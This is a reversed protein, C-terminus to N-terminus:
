GHNRRAVKLRCETLTRLPGVKYVWRSLAWAASLKIVADVLHDFAPLQRLWYDLSFTATGYPISRIAVTNVFFGVLSLIPPGIARVGSDLAWVLLVVIAVAAVYSDALVQRLAPQSCENM